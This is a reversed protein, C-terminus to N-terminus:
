WKEKPCHSAAFKVKMSIYCGCVTCRDGSRQPCKQCIAFRVLEDDAVKLKDCAVAKATNALNAALGMIGPIKHYENGTRKMHLTATPTKAIIETVGMVMLYKTAERLHKGKYEDIFWEQDVMSDTLNLIMATSEQLRRPM